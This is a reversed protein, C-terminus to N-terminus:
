LLLFETTLCVPVHMLFSDWLLFFWHLTYSIIKIKSSVFAPTLCWRPWSWNGGVVQRINVLYAQADSFSKKRISELQHEFKKTFSLFNSFFNASASCWCFWVRLKIKYTSHVWFLCIWCWYWCLHLVKFCM